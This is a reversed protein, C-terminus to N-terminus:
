KDKKYCFDLNVRPGGYVHPKLFGGSTNPDYNIVVTRVKFRGGTKLCNLVQVFPFYRLCLLVVALQTM